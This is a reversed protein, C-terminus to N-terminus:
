DPQPTPKRAHGSSKAPTTPTPNRAQINQPHVPIGPYIACAGQIVSHDDLDATLLYEEDNSVVEPTLPPTENIM